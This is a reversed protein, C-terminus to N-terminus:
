EGIAKKAPKNSKMPEASCIPASSTAHQQWTDSESLVGYLVMHAAKRCTPGASCMRGCVFSYHM